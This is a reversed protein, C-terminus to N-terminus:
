RVHGVPQRLVTKLKEPATRNPDTLYIGHHHGNAVLNHEPLFESHLRAMTPVAASEPGIHM